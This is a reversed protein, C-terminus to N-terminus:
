PRPAATALRRSSLAVSGTILTNAVSRAISISISECVSRCRRQYEARNYPTWEPETEDGEAMGYKVLTRIFDLTDPDVFGGTEYSFPVLRGVPIVFLNNYSTLKKTSAAAAAAGSKKVSTPHSAPNPHTLVADALYTAGKMFVAFDARNKATIDVDPKAPYFDTV